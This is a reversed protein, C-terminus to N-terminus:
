ISARGHGRGETAEKANERQKKQSDGGRALGPPQLEEHPRVYPVSCVYPAAPAGPRAVPGNSVLHDHAPDVLSSGDRERSRFHPLARRIRRGHHDLVWAVAISVAKVPRSRRLVDQAPICPV